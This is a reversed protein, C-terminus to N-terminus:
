SFITRLEGVEFDYILGSSLAQGFRAGFGPTPLIGSTHGSGPSMMSISSWSRMPSIPRTM